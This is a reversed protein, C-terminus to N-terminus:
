AHCRIVRAHTCGGEKTGPGAPIRFLMSFIVRCIFLEVNNYTVFYCYAISDPFLNGLFHNSFAEPNALLFRELPTTKM